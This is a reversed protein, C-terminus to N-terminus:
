GIVPVTATRADLAQGNGLMANLEGNAIDWPTVQVSASGDAPEGDPTVFANAPFTIRAGLDNASLTRAEEIADLNLTQKVRMLRIPTISDDEAPM